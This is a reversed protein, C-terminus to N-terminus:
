LYNLREVLENSVETSSIKENPYAKIVNKTFTSRDSISYAAGKAKFFIDGNYRFFGFDIDRYCVKKEDADKYLYLVEDAHSVKSDLAKLVQKCRTEDTALVMCGDSENVGQYVAYKSKKVKNDTKMLADFNSGYVTLKMKTFFKKITVILKDM